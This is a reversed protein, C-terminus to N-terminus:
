YIQPELTGSPVIRFDLSGFVCFFMLNEVGRNRLQFIKVKNQHLNYNLILSSSSVNVKALNGNECCWLNCLNSTVPCVFVFYYIYIYIGICLEVCCIISIVFLWENYHFLFWILPISIMWRLCNNEEIEWM